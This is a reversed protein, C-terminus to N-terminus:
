FVDRCSADPVWDSLRLTEAFQQPFDQLSAPRGFWIVRINYPITIQLSASDGLTTLHLSDYRLLFARSGSCLWFALKRGYNLTLLAEQVLTLVRALPAQQHQLWRALELLALHKAFPKAPAKARRFTDRSVTEDIKLKAIASLM